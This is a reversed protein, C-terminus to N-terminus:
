KKRLNKLKKNQEKKIEEMSNHAVERTTQVNVNESELEQAPIHFKWTDTSSVNSARKLVEELGGGVFTLTLDAM